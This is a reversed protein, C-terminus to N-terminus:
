KIMPPMSRDAPRSYRYKRSRNLCLAAVVAHVVVSAEAILSMSPVDAGSQAGKTM